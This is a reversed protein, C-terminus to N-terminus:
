TTPYISPSSWYWKLGESFYVAGEQQNPTPTFNILTLNQWLWGQLKKCRLSGNIEYFCNTQLSSLVELPELQELTRSEKQDDQIFKRCMENPCNTFLDTYGREGHVYQWLLILSPTSPFNGALVQCLDVETQM